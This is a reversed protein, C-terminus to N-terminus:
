EQSSSQWFQGWKGPIACLHFVLPGPQRPECSFLGWPIVWLWFKRYGMISMMNENKTLFTGREGQSKCRLFDECHVKWGNAMWNTCHLLKYYQKLYSAVCLFCFFRYWHCASQGPIQSKQGAKGDGQNGSARSFDPLRNPSFWTVQQAKTKDYTPHLFQVLNNHLLWWHKITKNWQYQSEAKSHYLVYNLGFHRLFLHSWQAPM